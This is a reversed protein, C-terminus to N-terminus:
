NWPQATHCLSYNMKIASKRSTSYLIKLHCKIVYLSINLFDNLSIKSSQSSNEQCSKYYILLPYTNSTYGIQRKMSKLIARRYRSRSHSEICKVLSNFHGLYVHMNMDVLRIRDSTAITKWSMLATNNWFLMYQNVHVYANTRYLKCQYKVVYFISQKSILIM